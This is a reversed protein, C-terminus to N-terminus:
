RQAGADIWQIIACRESAGLQGGPPMVDGPADAELRKVLLSCAPDGSLVRPEGGGGNVLLDYAKDPDDFVLGGKAGAPAHCSGGGVACSKKLTKEFVNDFTPAYLPACDITLDSVCALDGLESGCASTWLLAMLILPTHVAKPSIKV